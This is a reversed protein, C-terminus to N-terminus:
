HCALFRRNKLVGGGGTQTRRLLRRCCRVAVNKAANYDAYNEYGCKQCAFTEQEPRNHEHTFGCSSCRQSTYYAPVTKAQPSQELEEVEIGHANAKYQVYEYLRNVTMLLSLELFIQGVFRVCRMLISNRGSKSPARLHDGCVVSRQAIKPLLIQSYHM